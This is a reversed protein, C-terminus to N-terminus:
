EEGRQISRNVDREKITERKDHEQKGKVLALEVKIHRGKLYLKLPVLTVGKDKTKGILKRIEKAHLLLRRDRAKNESGKTAEILREVERGTLHKRDSDGARAM